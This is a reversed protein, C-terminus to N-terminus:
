LNECYTVEALVAVSFMAVKTKVRDAEMACIFNCFHPMISLFEIIIIIIIFRSGCFILACQVLSFANEGCLKWKEPKALLLLRYIDSAKPIGKKSAQQVSSSVVTQLTKTNSAHRLQEAFAFSPPRLHKLCRYHRSCISSYLNLLSSSRGVLMGTCTSQGLSSVFGVSIHRFHPKRLVVSCSLLLRCTVPHQWVSRAVSQGFTSCCHFVSTRTFHLM